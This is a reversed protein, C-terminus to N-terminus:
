GRTVRKGEGSAKTERERRMELRNNLFEDCLHVLADDDDTWFLTCMYVRIHSTRITMTIYTTFFRAAFPSFVDCRLGGM